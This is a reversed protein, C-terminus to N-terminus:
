HNLYLVKGSDFLFAALVLTYVNLSNSVIITDSAMTSSKRKHVGIRECEPKLIM